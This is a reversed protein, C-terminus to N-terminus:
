RDCECAVDRGTIGPMIRFVWVRFESGQIQVCIIISTPPSQLTVATSTASWGTTPATASPRPSSVPSASQSMASPACTLSALFRGVVGSDSRELTSEQDADAARVCQHQQPLVSAQIAPHWSPHWSTNQGRWGKGQGGGWSIKYRTQIWKNHHATNKLVPGTLGSRLGQDRSQEAPPATTMTVTRAPTAPACGTGWETTQHLARDISPSGLQPHPGHGALQGESRTPSESHSFQQLDM